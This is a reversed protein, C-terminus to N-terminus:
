ALPQVQRLNFQVGTMDESVTWLRKAVAKDHSRDNSKVKTPHGKMEMFGDPGYYTGGPVNPATAAYLTPLAGQEPMMALFRNLFQASRTNKQLNTSTWGPHAAVAITSEGAADLRRQLEYTFLLNAIKSQGYFPWKQYGQEGNLNNFDIKGMKHATSSVTVIRADQTENMLPLLLGTLAFHGLHNTGFQLEFGDATQTYPPVMVGANNILLDLQEYQALFTDAFTRISSLNSLDLPLIHLAADPATELIRAKATEAKAVTRCAMVVHAQKAALMRTTEYGIGSNAGTVIAVRGAQNPLDNFNWQKQQAM